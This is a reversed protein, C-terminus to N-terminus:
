DNVIDVHIFDDCTYKLILTINYMLKIEIFNSFFHQAHSKCLIKIRSEHKISAKTSEQSFLM